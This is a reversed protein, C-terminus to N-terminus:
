DALFQQAFYDPSLAQGTAMHIMRDWRYRAGPEFVRTRLFKGIEKRDVYDIDRASPGALQKAISAHLQSALLEGLLYNHYYCPAITFHIKAAWDPHDRGDPRHVLQYREVLDWWLQNLDQDPDAYLRKEFEYMVMAWRAFILQRLRAQDKCPGTIQDVQQDSLGLMHRIWSPNSSLRGFLMAVAETTFIHAPQRLLYPTNPDQYLEYVGHGLEHLITDMWYQDNKLNCLIRVDGERDINTCFAHPNKGEREYLDSRELIQGVPLGIGDYFRVAIEQVDVTKYYSDLDLGYIDPAEQFFPDHYHWPRLQDPTIGYRTALIRDLEAKLRSYPIRTQEYLQEFLRDLEKVDQEAVTLALTHYNDFGMQRAAQNRLRVLRILDSAVEQGVQKSALWAQRRREQDMETRLIQKIQNDTVRQGGLQPRYTSFRQEITTSLEVIQKLLEPPLQNELYNNYLLEVQRALLPDKPGRSAKVTKLFAFDNADSYISRLQLRLEAAKQYAESQGTTAAQWEALNCQIALPRVKEVHADIFRKVQVDMQHRCGFMLISSLVLLNTKQM